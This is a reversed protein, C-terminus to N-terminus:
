PWTPWRNLPETASSSSNETPASSQPMSSQQWDVGEGKYLAALRKSEAEVRAKAAEARAGRMESGPEFTVTVQESQKFRTASAVQRYAARDAPTLGSDETFPALLGRPYFRKVRVVNLEVSFVLICAAAFLWGMLGLVFAFVGYTDSTTRAIQGVYSTGISQLWQWGLAAVLAGPLVQSFQLDRVTSIRMGMTFVITNVTITGLTIFVITWQGLEINFSDASSVVGSVITSGLLAVVALGVLGASRVRALVPNPRAYRAIGWALDMAHGTAQSARLSGWIAIAGGILAAIGNGELGQPTAIESGIVPIQRAASDLIAEQLAPQNTLLFGLVSSLLLLLPFLSLFGYYTILAALYIGQDDVFKYIVAIPYGLLPHRQQFADIRDLM